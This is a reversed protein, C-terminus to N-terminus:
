ELLGSPLLVASKLLQLLGLEKEVLLVPADKRSEFWLGRHQPCDPGGAAVLDGVHLLEAGLRAHLRRNRGCRGGLVPRPRRHGGSLVGGHGIGPVGVSHQLLELLLLVLMQVPSLNKLWFVQLRKIENCIKLVEM